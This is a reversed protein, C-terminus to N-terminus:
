FLLQRNPMDLKQRRKSHVQKLWSHYGIDVSDCTMILMAVMM